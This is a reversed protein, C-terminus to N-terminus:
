LKDGFRFKKAARKKKPSPAIGLRPDGSRMRQVLRNADREFTEASEPLYLWKKLM